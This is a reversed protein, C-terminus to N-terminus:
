PNTLGKASKYVTFMTDASKNEKIYSSFESEGLCKKRHRVFQSFFEGLQPHLPCLWTVCVLSVPSVPFSFNSLGVGM